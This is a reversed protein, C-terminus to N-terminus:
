LMHHARESGRAGGCSTKFRRRFPVRIVSQPNRSTSPMFHIFHLSQLVLDTEVPSWGAAGELLKTMKCDQLRGHADLCCEKIAKCLAEDVQGEPMTLDDRNIPVGNTPSATTPSWMLSSRGQSPATYFSQAGSSLMSGSKQPSYPGSSAERMSNISKQLEDCRSKIASSHAEASAVSSALHSSSPTGLGARQELCQM